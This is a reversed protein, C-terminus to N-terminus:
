AGLAVTAAYPTATGDEAATEGEITIQVRGPAAADLSSTIRHITLRPEWSMLATACAAYLQLLTAPNAPADVLDPGLSGFPRRRLRTGISTALVTYISQDLHARGAIRRGTRMDMGLYAM